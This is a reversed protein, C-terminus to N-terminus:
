HLIVVKRALRITEESLLRVFYVGSKLGTVDLQVGSSKGVPMQVFKNGRLDVIEIM